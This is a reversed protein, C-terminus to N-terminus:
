CLLKRRLKRLYNKKFDRMTGLFIRDTNNEKNREYKCASHEIGCVFDALQFLRYNNPHANRYVIVQKDLAYEFAAHLVRTILRQGDDYYLKISDYHILAELHDFLFLLLDRRMKQELRRKDEFEKKRYIFTTYKFPIHWALTAFSQLLRSRDKIDIQAYPGNGHTLPVYHFPINPLERDLLAHEYYSITESLRNSQDHFVLTLIYYDSDWGFNGSEDVFVSLENM